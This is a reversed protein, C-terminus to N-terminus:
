GLGLEEGRRAVDAVVLDADADWVDQAFVEVEVDGDWGARRAADLFGPIDIVGDGPLRRALLTDAPLPASWDSIQVAAIRGETGARLIGRELEPDWWVHFADIVVGAVETPIGRLLDISQGLTNVVCRDSAYMPHLPELGLRVGADQASPALKELGERVRSRASALDGGAPIGGAVLALVAVSGSAGAATLAATEDIARRNEDLARRFGDDDPATLFGGRCLSSVRLGSDGVIRVADALGVDAVPERWLGISGIGHRRTAAVAEVLSAHKITAQNLSLKM